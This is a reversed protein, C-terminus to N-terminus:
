LEGPPPGAPGAQPEAAQGPAPARAPAPGVVLDPTLEGISGAGALRLAELLEEQLTALLTTVGGEGDAALAYVPPRGLFVARAGLALALLAHEGRRVGGDVYVEVEPAVEQAVEALADVTAVAHDLQRGGHNSVWVASAGAEVCRRADDARLVGKVVVPVDFTGALWAVDQPGLDKAKELGGAESAVVPGPTPFNGRVWAPDIDAWGSSAGRLGLPGGLPKSGVVPTDATLVIAQAGADVAKGIVEATAARNSTVYAQVWWLGAAQGIDAFSSGANSSVVLLSGAAKAARAMAVEGEPHVARQLTTPAIALPSTVPQGLVSCATDVRTVDVLVRPRLRYADWRASAEGAAVGDGAGASLYGAIHAPLERVARQEVEDIYRRSRPEDAWSRM